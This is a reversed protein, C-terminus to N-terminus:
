AQVDVDAGGGPVETFPGGRRGAVNAPLDVKSDDPVPGVLVLTSQLEDRMRRHRADHENIQESLASVLGTGLRSVPLSSLLGSSVGIRWGISVVCLIM